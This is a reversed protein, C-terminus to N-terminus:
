KFDTVAGIPESNVEVEPLIRGFDGYPRSGSNAGAWDGKKFDLPKNQNGRFAPGM